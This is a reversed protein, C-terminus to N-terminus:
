GEAASGFVKSRLKQKTIAVGLSDIPPSQTDQEVLHQCAKRWEVVLIDVFHVAFDQLFRQGEWAAVDYWRGSAIQECSQQVTIGNTTETSVAGCLDFRVVEECVNVPALKELPLVLGAETRVHYTIWSRNM